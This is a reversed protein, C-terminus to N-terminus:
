LRTQGFGFLDSETSSHRCASTRRQFDDVVSEAGVEGNIPIMM